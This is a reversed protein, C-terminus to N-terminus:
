NKKLTVSAFTYKKDLWHVFPQTVSPIDQDSVSFGNQEALSVLNELEKRSFINWALGYLRTSDTNIKPEWYDATLFLTGGKKLIRYTEELFTKLDVEHEIVSLAVIFDFYSNPFTTKMLNMKKLRYPRKHNGYIMARLQTLRDSFSITLDIGTCNIFGKEHFVRLVYNGACGMDLLQADKPYNNLLDNIQSLDWNKLPHPHLSYDTQYLNYIAKGLDELSNLIKPM